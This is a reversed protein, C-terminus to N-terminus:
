AQMADLAASVLVLGFNSYSETLVADHGATGTLDPWM